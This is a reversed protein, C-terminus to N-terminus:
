NLKLVIKVKANSLCEHDPETIVFGRRQYWALLYPTKAADDHAVSGYIETIGESKAKAILKDLLQNGIGRHKLHKSELVLDSLLLRVGQRVAKLAIYHRRRVLLTIIWLDDETEFVFECAPPHKAIWYQFLRLYFPRFM